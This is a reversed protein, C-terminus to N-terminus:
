ATQDSETPLSSERVQSPPWPKLRMTPNIALARTGTTCRTKMSLMRRCMSKVKCLPAGRSRQGVSRQARWAILFDGESIIKALTTGCQSVVYREDGVYSYRIGRKELVVWSLLNRKFGPVFEVDHVTLHRTKEGVQTTMEISGKRLSKTRTGDPLVLPTSAESADKGLLASCGTM